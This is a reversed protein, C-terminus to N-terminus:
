VDAKRRPVDSGVKGFIGVGLDFHRRDFEIGHVKDSTSATIEEDIEDAFSSM